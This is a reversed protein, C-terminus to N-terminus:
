PFWGSRRINASRDVGQHVLEAYNHRAESGTHVPAGHPASWAHNKPRYYTTEKLVFDQLSTARVSTHTRVTSTRSDTGM